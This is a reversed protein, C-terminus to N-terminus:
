HILTYIYYAYRLALTMKDLGLIQSDRRKLARIKSLRSQSSPPSNSFNQVFTLVIAKFTEDTIEGGKVEIM